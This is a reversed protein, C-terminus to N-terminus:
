LIISQKVNLRFFLPLMVTLQCATIEIFEDIQQYRTVARAHDTDPVLVFLQHPLNLERM